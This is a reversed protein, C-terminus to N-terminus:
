RFMIRPTIYETFIVRVVHFLEDTQRALLIILIRPQVIVPM